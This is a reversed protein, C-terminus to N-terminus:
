QQGMFSIRRAHTAPFRLHTSEPLGALVSVGLLREADMEYRLSPDMWERLLIMGCGIILGVLFSGALIMAKKTRSLSNEAFVPNQVVLTSSATVKEVNAKLEAQQRRELLNEYQGKLLTYDRTKQTLEREAAPLAAIRAQYENIKKDLLAVRAKQTQEAIKAATLQQTLDMYEPNDQLKTETVNRQQTPDLKQQAAIKKNVMEIKQLIGTAQSGTPNLGRNVVLNNYKAQLDRQQQVLPDNSFTQELIAKPKVKSIRQALAASKLANDQATIALYDREMRLNAFQQLSAEQAGPLQGSHRSKYDVLIREANQLYKEYRAIESNLFQTTAVAQSQRSLGAEDIYAAQLSKVIRECEERDDWTLGITFVDSSRPTAFVQKRFKILRPDSAQPNVEIPRRLNANKLVVDVFGGPLTNQMLDGFHAVNKDSPAIWTQKEFGMVQTVDDNIVRISSSAVYSANRFLLSAGVVITVGVVAMAFPLWNRFFADLLRSILYNRRYLL